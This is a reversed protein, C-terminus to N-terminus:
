LVLDKRDLFRYRAAESLHNLGIDRKGALDAITRAVKLIRSYARASLGDHSILKELFSTCKGDMRCFESLMRGTMGANTHVGCGRFRDEQIRRAELVRVAVAASSEEPRRGILDSAPVADLWLHIDIRDMLPGSLKSLYAQRKGPTCTCRDGDGYHGCPCPNTAAILMFDAPYEVKNRLRSITVKRDEMPARLAEIIRKPAECLEDMFLVGNHALSIEGPMINESGGGIIANLSSSYHPSRFPRRRILGRRMCGKGAVSYIKSTEVAEEVTMPPLIMSAAKALSSKGAGPPGILLVNHGGAAAIEADYEAAEEDDKVFGSPVHTNERKIDIHEFLNHDMFYRYSQDHSGDLGVYEDLNYSKAQAFSLKGEACLRALEAYLGLPTSGTALGLVADPKKALLEVYQQAAQKAADERTTIIVKM